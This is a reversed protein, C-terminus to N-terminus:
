PPLSGGTDHRLKSRSRRSFGAPSSGSAGIGQPSRFLRQPDYRDKVEALRPYAAGWYAHRHDALWPDRYNPYVYGSLWPSLLRQVETLWATVRRHEPESDWFINVVLNAIAQRHVFATELPGVRNIVGGYPELYVMSWANPSREFLELLESWVRPPVGRTLYGGWKRYAFGEPLEEPFEYPVEAAAVSMEAFEGARDLALTGGAGAELLPAVLARGAEPAGCYLGQLCYAPRGAHFGLNMIYGLEDAVADGCYRSQVTDLVEVIDAAGWEIAFAWVNELPGMRLSIDLVVGLHGGGAGRLAWFLDPHQEANALVISGDALMVTFGLARDCMMGFSRSTLGYGGGQTYGAVCVSDCLGMPLHWGTGRLADKLIAFTTAPGLHAVDGVLRVDTMRSLDLVVGDGGSHGAVCHGSSRLHLAKDAERAWRVVAAVDEVTTCYAIREPQSQCAGNFLRRASDYGPDGPGVLPGSIRPLSRDSRSM